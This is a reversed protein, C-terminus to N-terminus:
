KYFGYKDFLNDLEASTTAKIVKSQVEIDTMELRVYVKNGLSDKKERIMQIRGIKPNEKAYRALGIAKDLSDDFQEGHPELIDILYGAAYDSRVIIFDPRM